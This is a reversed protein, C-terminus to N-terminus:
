ADRGSHFVIRDASRQESWGLRRFIKLSPANGTAVEAHVRTAPHLEQLAGLGSTVLVHGLGQGRVEPALGYSLRATTWQDPTELRLVGCPCGAMSEAVLILVSPNALQATLWECHDSWEIPARGFSAARTAADNAWLWLPYADVALAPRV